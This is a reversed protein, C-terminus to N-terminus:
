RRRGTIKMAQSMLFGPVFDLCGHRPVGAVYCNGGLRETAESAGTSLRRQCPSTISSELFDLGEFFRIRPVM